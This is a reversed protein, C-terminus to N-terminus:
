DLHFFRVIEETVGCEDNSKAEYKCIEKLKPHANAMAYSYECAQMMEFDNLYDGFAMCEEPLIGYLQQIKRVGAGKDVGRRMIDIWLNGSVALMFRDEFEKVIPYIVKEASEANFIALKCISDEKAAELLDDVVMARDYYQLLKQYFGDDRTELYARKEGCLVVYIDDRQRLVEVINKVDEYAIEDMYLRKGYDFIMAGNDAIAIIDDIMNGFHKALNYYQRGSAVAFRVGKEKLQHIRHFLDKPSEGHSNVLTGDMDTIVLKVM